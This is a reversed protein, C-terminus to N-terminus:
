IWHDCSSQFIKTCTRTPTHTLSHTNAYAHALPLPSFSIPLSCENICDWGGDFRVCGRVREPGGVKRGEVQVGRWWWQWRRWIPLPKPPLRTHARANHTPNTSTTQSTGSSASSGRSGTSATSNASARSRRSSRSHNSKSRNSRVSGSVSNSDVHSDQSHSSGPRSRPSTVDQFGKVGNSSSLPLNGPQGSTM